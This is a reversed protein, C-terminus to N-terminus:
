TIDNRREQISRMRYGKWKKHHSCMKCSCVKTVNRRVRHCHELSGETMRLDEANARLVTMRKHAKADGKLFRERKNKPHAM